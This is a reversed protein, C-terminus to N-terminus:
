NKQIAEKLQFMADTNKEVINATQRHLDLLRQINIIDNELHQNNLKNIYWFSALTILGFPGYEAVIEILNEM